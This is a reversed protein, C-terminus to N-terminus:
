LSWSVSYSLSEILLKFQLYTLSLRAAFPIGLLSGFFDDLDFFSV